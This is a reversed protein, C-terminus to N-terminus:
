PKVSSHRNRSGSTTLGVQHWSDHKCSTFDRQGAWPDHLSRLRQLGQHGSMNMPQRAIRSAVTDTSQLEDPLNLGFRMTGM